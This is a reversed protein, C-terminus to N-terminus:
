LNAKKGAVGKGARQIARQINTDDTKEAKAEGKLIGIGFRANTGEAKLAKAKLILRKGVLQQLRRNLERQREDMAAQEILIHNVEDEVKRIEREIATM